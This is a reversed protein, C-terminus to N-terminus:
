EGVCSPDSAIAAREDLAYISVMTERADHDAGLALLLGFSGEYHRKGSTNSASRDRAVATVRVGRHCVLYRTGCQADTLGPISLWREYDNCALYPPDAPQRYRGLATPSCTFGPAFWGPKSSCTPNPQADCAYAGATQAPVAVAHASCCALHACTGEYRLSLNRGGVGGAAPRPM